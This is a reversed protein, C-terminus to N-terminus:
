TIDPDINKLRKNIAELESQLTQSRNEIFEKELKPDDPQPPTPYGGFYMREPGGVAFFRNRWGRGGVTPGGGWGGRRHAMGM